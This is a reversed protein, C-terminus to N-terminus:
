TEDYARLPNRSLIDEVEEYGTLYSFNYRAPLAFVYKSNRGLESPGIPAASVAFEERQLANWQDITFIMIPIDQMPAAQTWKPNRILLKPGTEAIMQEGTLSRGEWKEPIVTYGDWDKPLNFDFGYETNQYVIGGANPTPSVAPTISASASAPTAEPSPTSEPSPASTQSPTSSPIPVGASCAGLLVAAMCVVLFMYIIRYKTKM